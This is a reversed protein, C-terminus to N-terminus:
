QVRSRGPRTTTRCSSRCSPAGRTAARSCCTQCWRGAQASRANFTSGIASARHGCRVTRRSTLYAGDIDYESVAAFQDYMGNFRDLVAQRRPSRPGILAISEALTEVAKTHTELYEDLHDSISQAADVLQASADAQQRTSLVQGIMVSLLLVPLLAAVEFADYADTRLSHRRDGHLRRVWRTSRVMMAVGKAIVVGSMLIVNRQLAYTWALPSPFGVFAQNFLAPTISFVLAVVTWYVATPVIPSRQRRCILGVILAEGLMSPIRIPLSSFAYPAGALLAAFLGYWPGFLIAVPLSLIRGPILPAVMPHAVLDLLLALCGAAAAVSMRRADIRM